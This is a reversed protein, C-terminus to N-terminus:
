LLPSGFCMIIIKKMVKVGQQEAPFWYAEEKTLKRLVDNEECSCRDFQTQGEETDILYHTNTASNCEDSKCVFQFNRHVDTSKVHTPSSQHFCEDVEQCSRELLILLNQCIGNFSTYEHTDPVNRSINVQVAHPLETFTVDDYKKGDGFKFSVLNRYIGYKFHLQCAKFSAMTTVFRTFYGPPVFKTSFTIHLPTARM